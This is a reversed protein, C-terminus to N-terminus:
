SLRRRRRVSLEIWISWITIAIVPLWIPFRMHIDYGYIGHRAYKRFMLGTVSFSGVRSLRYSDAKQYYSDSGDRSFFEGVGALSGDIWEVQPHRETRIDHHDLIKLRWPTPM